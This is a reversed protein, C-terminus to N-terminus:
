LYIFLAATGNTNNDSQWKMLWKNTKFLFLAHVDDNVIFVHTNAVIM